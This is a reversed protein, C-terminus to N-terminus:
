IMLLAAAVNRGEAMLINYTRCAAGTDMVELGIGHQVLATTLRPPPFRLREGSGFLVLEPQLAALAEFHAPALEEFSQPPWDRVLRRPMVVASQRLVEHPAHAVADIDAQAPLAVSIQGAQYSRILYNGATIDLNFKM